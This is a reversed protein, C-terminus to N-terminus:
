QKTGVVKNYIAKVRKGPSSKMKAKKTKTNITLRDGTLINGGRNLVVNEKFIVDDQGVFYEAYDSNVIDNAKVLEVDGIAVISEIKNKTNLSEDYKIILKNSTLTVDQYITKVKGSFVASGNLREIELLESTIDIATTAVTSAKPEKASANFAILSCFALLSSLFLKNIKIM